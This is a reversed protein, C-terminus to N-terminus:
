KIAGIEKYYKEAGPHLPVTLGNQCNEPTISKCASHIDYVKDLNDYITKTFMYVLDDPLDKRCFIYNAVAFTQIDETQNEYTGAPITCKFYAPNATLIQDLEDDSFSLLHYEGTAYLETISAAGLAAILNAGDAQGNKMLDVSQSESTYEINSDDYTLGAASFMDRTNLETASGSAGACFTKGKMDAFTKIGSKDSVAVQMVNPYVYTVSSINDFTQGEFPDTGDIAQKAVGAQGFAFDTEGDQMLRLNDPTGGTSQATTSFWTPEQDNLLQALGNAVLFYTGGSTAGCIQITYPSSPDAIGSASSSSSSSSSTSGSSTSTASTGTSNGCAVLSFSMLLCLVLAFMRKKM